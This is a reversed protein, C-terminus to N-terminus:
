KSIETKDVAGKQEALYRLVISAAISFWATYAQPNARLDAALKDASVWLAESAEAPDARCPGTYRGALVHDFEYEYLAPHFQHYYVFAGIEVLRPAPIALEEALRRAAATFLEEGVRPHSCCTNGWLGGSHYKTIARKQLLLLPEAATDDYLFVSFARHLLPKAHASEKDTEGVANDYFDVLVLHENM